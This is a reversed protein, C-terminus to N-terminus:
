YSSNQVFRVFIRALSPRESHEYITIMFTKIYKNKKKIKPTTRIVHANIM